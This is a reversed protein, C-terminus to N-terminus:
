LYSLECNKGRVRSDSGIKRGYPLQYLIIDYCATKKNKKVMTLFNHYRVLIYVTGTTVRGVGGGVIRGFCFFWGVIIVIGGNRVSVSFSFSFFFFFLFFAKVHRM